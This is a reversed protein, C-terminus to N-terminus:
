VTGSFSPRPNGLNDGKGLNVGNSDQDFFRVNHFGFFGLFRQVIETNLLKAMATRDPRFSYETVEFVKSASEAPGPRCFGYRFAFFFLM